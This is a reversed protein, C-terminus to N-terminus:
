KTGHGIGHMVQDVRKHAREATHKANVAQQEVRRIEGRLAAVTAVAAAFQGAVIVAVLVWQPDIMM